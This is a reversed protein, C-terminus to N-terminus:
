SSTVRTGSASETARSRAVLSERVARSPKLVEGPSDPFGLATSPGPRQQGRVTSTPLRCRGRAASTARADPTSSCLGRSGVHFSPWAHVAGLSRCRDRAHRNASPSPVSQAALLLSRQCTSHSQGNRRQQRISDLRGSGLRRARPRIEGKRCPWRIVPGARQPMPRDSDAEFGLRALADSGKMPHHLSAFRTDRQGVGGRRYSIIRAGPTRWCPSVNQCISTTLPL